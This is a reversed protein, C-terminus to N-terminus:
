TGYVLFLEFLMAFFGLVACVVYAIVRPKGSTIGHTDGQDKEEIKDTFFREFLYLGAGGLFLVAFIGLLFYNM